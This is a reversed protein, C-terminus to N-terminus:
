FNGSLNAVDKAWGPDNPVHVDMRTIEEAIQIRPPGSQGTHRQAEGQM